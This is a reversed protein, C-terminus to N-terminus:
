AAKPIFRLAVGNNCWRQGTPQPGDEFVHGQHGGCKACHYEHRPFVLLFDSKGATAGPITTFFSPWGTGSNFKMASSFLPLSCGACVFVGPRHENDLPSSGARETDEHRLVGYAAPALRKKWEEDSLELPANSTAIDAGPALLTKWSDQVEKATVGLTKTAGQAPRGGAVGALLLGTLANLISRRKM